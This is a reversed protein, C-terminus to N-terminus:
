PKEKRSPQLAVRAIEACACPPISTHETQKLAVQYRDHEACVTLMMQSAEDLRADLRDRETEAVARYRDREFRVEYAAERLHQVEDVVRGSGGCACPGGHATKGDGGCTNCRTEAKLRDREIRLRNAEQQYMSESLRITDREAEAQDVRLRIGELKTLAATRRIESEDARAAKALLDPLGLACDIIEAVGKRPRPFTVIEELAEAARMAEPTPNPM